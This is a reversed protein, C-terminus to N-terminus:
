RYNVGKHKIWGNADGKKSDHHTKNVVGGARSWNYVGRFEIFDGKKLPLREGGNIEHKIELLQGSNLAVLYAQRKTRGFDDPLVKKIKGEGLAYSNRSKEDFANKFLKDCDSFRGSATAVTKKRNNKFLDSFKFNKPPRPIYPIDYNLYAYAGSCILFVLFLRKM